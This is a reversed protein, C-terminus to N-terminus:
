IVDSEAAAAATAAAAAAASIRSLIYDPPAWLMERATHKHTLTKAAGCYNQVSQQLQHIQYM